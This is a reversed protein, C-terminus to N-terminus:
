RACRLTPSGGQSILQICQEASDARQDFQGPLAEVAFVAAVNDSILASLKDATNDLQPEAFVKYRCSEFLERDINDADYRNIIRVDELGKIGLLTRADSKLAAAENALEPKKEVYLRYVM